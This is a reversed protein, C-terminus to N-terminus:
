PFNKLELNVTLGQCADLVQDLGPVFAPLDVRRTGAVTRGDGLSPDHIVVLQDDVTRRVDCEVGEAGQRRCWDFSPLRNIAIESGDEPGHGFVVTVSRELEHSGCRMTVPKTTVPKGQGEARPSVPTMVSRMATSPAPTMPDPMAWTIAM